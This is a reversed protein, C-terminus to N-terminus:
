RRRRRTLMGLGALGLMAAASPEPVATLNLTAQGSALFGTGAFANRKQAAFGTTWSYQRGAILNGTLSGTPINVAIGGNWGDTLTALDVSNTLDRLIYFSLTDINSSGYFNDGAVTYVSDITANFLITSSGNGFAGLGTPTAPGVSGTSPIEVNWVQALSTGSTNTTQNSRYGGTMHNGTGIFRSLDNGSLNSGTANLDTEIATDRIRVSDSVSTVVIDAKVANATLSCVTLSLITLLRTLTKSKTSCFQHQIM